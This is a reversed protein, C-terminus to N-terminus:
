STLLFPIITLLLHPLLVTSSSCIIRLVSKVKLDTKTQTVKPEAQEDMFPALLCMTKVETTSLKRILMVILILKVLPVIVVLM